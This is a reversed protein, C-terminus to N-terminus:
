RNFLLNPLFLVTQPTLTVFVLLGLLVLIFPTLAAVAKEFNLKEISCVTILVVGVPPTLNGIMANFIIIIGFHTPDFGAAQSLPLVMPVFLMINVNPDSLCGLIIFLINIFLMILFPSDGCFSVMFRLIHMQVNEATLVFGFAKAAPIVMLIAGCTAFVRGFSEWIGGASLTRYLIVGLITAYLVAIASAETVTVFGLYIGGLLILPTLLPLFSRVFSTLILRLLVAAPPQVEIPYGRKISVIYVHIMLAVGILIGPLIGGFFLRGISVNAVMAYIVMPISPPIIPGVTSSAMTVAASFEKDYGKDVMAKYCLHGIGGVDAVASGSMGAFIVSTVINVHGMGGRLYGVISHCFDFIRDAVSTRNMVEATLIFMPISLLVFNDLAAFMQIGLFSMDMGRITVYVMASAIMSVTIPIGALIFVTFSGFFAPLEM